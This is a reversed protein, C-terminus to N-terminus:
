SSPPGARDRKRTDATGRRGRRRGTATGPVSANPLTTRPLVLVGSVVVTVLAPPPVSAIVDSVGPPALAPSKARVPVQAAPVFRAAPWLQVTMWRKVGVAVPTREAVSPTAVLPPLAVSFRVPVPTAAGVPGTSATLAVVSSRPATGIPRLPAGRVIATAFLPLPVIM